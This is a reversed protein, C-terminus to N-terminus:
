VVRREVIRGCINDWRLAGDLAGRAADFLQFVGVVGLQVGDKVIQRPRVKEFHEGYFKLSLTGEPLLPRRRRGSVTRRRGESLLLLPGSVSLVGEVTRSATLEVERRVRLRQAAQVGPRATGEAAIRARAEAGKERLWGRGGDVGELVGPRGIGHVSQLRLADRRSEPRVHAVSVVSAAGRRDDVQGAVRLPVRSVVPAVDPVGEVLLVAHLHVGAVRAVLLHHQIPEHRAEVRRDGDPGGFM